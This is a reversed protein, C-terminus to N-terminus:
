CLYYEVKYIEYASASSVFIKVNSDEIIKVIIDSLNKSGRVAWLFTHTDLLYSIAGRNLGTRQLRACWHRKVKM